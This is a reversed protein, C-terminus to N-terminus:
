YKSPVFSRYLREHGVDRPKRQRKPLTPMDVPIKEYPIVSLFHDICNLRARRKDNSPVVYWPAFDTDTVRFIEDYAKSYDWWRRFSEIDMPSLKWQRVPDNIRAKFRREQEEQSVDVWYKVLRIGFNIIEREFNPCLRLFTEYEQDTCFGMVREVGGRNYWSRDFIVVEGAAPFHPIYRQIYMQSKERESPAPLAVTRFTRPSVRETLRKIIGGKGAADRGEFVIIIKEGKAKVWEQLACLEGQLERLKKEYEKRDLKEKPAAQRQATAHKEAVVVDEKDARVQQKKQKESKKQKKPKKAM